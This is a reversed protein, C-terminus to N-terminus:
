GDPFARVLGDSLPDGPNRIQLKGCFMAGLDPEGPRDRAVFAEHASKGIGDILFSKWAEWVRQIVVHVIERESKKELLFCHQPHRDAWTMDLVGGIAFDFSRLQSRSWSVGIRTEVIKQMLDVPLLEDNTNLLLLGGIVPRGSGLLLKSRSVQREAKKIDALIGPRVHDWFTVERGTAAKGPMSAVFDREGFRM